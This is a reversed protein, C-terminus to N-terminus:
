NKDGDVYRRWTICIDGGNLQKGRRLKVKPNTLKFIASSGSIITTDLLNLTKNQLNLQYGNLFRCDHYYLGFGHNDELPVNGDPRVLLFVNQNKLIVAEAISRTSSPKGRIPLNKRPGKRKWEFSFISRKKKELTM